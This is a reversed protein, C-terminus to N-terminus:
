ADVGLEAAWFEVWAVPALEQRCRVFALRAEEHEGLYHPAIALDLQLDPRHSALSEDRRLYRVAERWKALHFALGGVLRQAVAATTGNTRVPWPPPPPRTIRIDSCIQVVCVSTANRTLILSPAAEM